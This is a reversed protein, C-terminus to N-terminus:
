TQKKKLDKGIKTWPKSSEAHKTTCLPGDHCEERTVDYTDGSKVRVIKFSGFYKVKLKLNPVFHSSKVAVIDGIKYSPLIRRRM